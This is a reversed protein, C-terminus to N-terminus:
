VGPPRERPDDGTIWVAKVRKFPSADVWDGRPLGWLRRARPTEFEPEFWTLVRQVWDGITALSERSPLGNRFCIEGEGEFQANVQPNAGTARIPIAVIETDVELRKGFYGRNLEAVGVVECDNLGVIQCHTTMPAIAVPQIMRHKDHSWLNDLDSLPHRKRRAVARPSATGKKRYCPQTRYIMARHKQMVGKLMTKQVHRSNWNVQTRCAPYAVKEPFSRGGLGLFALEFILHDLASRLNHVIDGIITAYRLSPQFVEGVSIVYLFVDEHDPTPKFEGRTTMLHTEGSAFEATIESQLADFHEHARWFKAECGALPHYIPLVPGSDSAM